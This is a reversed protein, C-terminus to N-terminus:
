TLSSPWSWRLARRRILIAKKLYSMRHVFYIVGQLALERAQGLLVLFRAISRLRYATRRVSSQGTRGNDADALALQECKGEWFDRQKRLDAIEDRLLSIIEEPRHEWLLYPM